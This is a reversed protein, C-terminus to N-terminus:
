AIRVEKGTKAAEYIAIMIKMDKLGELGSIHDPMPETSQFLPGMAEMQAHQHHRYPFEFKNERDGFLEGKLPGYSYAPAMRITKREAAIALEDVYGQYGSYGSMFCGSPFRLQWSIGDEVEKFKPDTVPGFQATVSVPEEGTAYRAAQICYVGVDMLSGGGALKRDLRWQGAPGVNISFNANIYGFKGFAQNAGWEMIQQHYGNFHLRYGIALKVGAKDCAEIMQEAERVSVAMPKECIVHKGAQAARITYEAHMGNPLCIYVADIDDSDALGDYNEYNFVNEDRIGWKKKWSPIKSPTGTVIGTVKWFDSQELGVGVQYTAYNGLGVLALGLKKKKGAAFSQAGMFPLTAAAIGMSKLVARRNISM